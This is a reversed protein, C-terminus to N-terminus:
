RRFYLDAKKRDKKSLQRSRPDKWFQRYFAKMPKIKLYELKFYGFLCEENKYTDPHTGLQTCLQELRKTLPLREKKNIRPLSFSVKYGKRLVIGDTEGSIKEYNKTYKVKGVLYIDINIQPIEKPTIPAFRRDKSLIFYAYNSVLQYLPYKSGISGISGRTIGNKKFLLIAGRKQLLNYTLKYKKNNIKLKKSTKFYYKITDKIISKLTKTEENTLSTKVTYIDNSISKTNTKPKSFDVSVYSNNKTSDISYESKYEMLNPVLEEDKLIKSLVSISNFGSFYFDKDKSYNKLKFDSLDGIAEILNADQKEIFKLKNKKLKLQNIFHKKRQMNGLVIILSNEKLNKSLNKSFKKLYHTTINGISFPTIKIKNIKIVDKLYNLCSLFSNNKKVFNNNLSILNKEKLISIIDQNLQIKKDKFYFNNKNFTSIDNRNPNDILIIANEYSNKDSLCLLGKKIVSSSVENDSEPIVVAKIEDTVWVGVVEDNQKVFNKGFINLITFFVFIISLVLFKRM